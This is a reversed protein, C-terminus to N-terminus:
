WPLSSELHFFGGTPGDAPLTALRVATVAGDELSMPANPGGMDTQVWGPHASNVKIPTNRLEYALHQTFANLATKSANYAFLKSHYIPSKPDSHLSLSSLISSHNVIRAARSKKLLPLLSQTLAVLGFLNTEFTARMHDLSIEAVTSQQFDTGEYNVGANNILVDLKGFETGIARTAEAIEKSSTVDLEVPRADIGQGRLEDAAARAKSLDRAGMLVVFGKEGLRKAIAYGLGKNAGTILAVSKESQM